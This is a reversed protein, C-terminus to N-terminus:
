LYKVALRRGKASNLADGAQLGSPPPSFLLDLGRLDPMLSEPLWRLWAGTVAMKMDQQRWGPLVKTKCNVNVTDMTILGLTTVARVIYMGIDSRCGSSHQVAVGFLSM